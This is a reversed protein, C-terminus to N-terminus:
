SVKHFTEAAGSLTTNPMVVVLSQTQPDIEPLVGLKLLFEEETITQRDIVRLMSRVFIDTNGPGPVAQSMFLHDLPSTVLPPTIPESYAGHDAPLNVTTADTNTDKQPVPPAPIEIGLINRDGPSASPSDLLGSDLLLKFLPFNAKGVATNIAEEIDLSGSFINLGHDLVLRTM